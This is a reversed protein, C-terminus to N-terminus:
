QQTEKRYYLSLPGRRSKCSLRASPVPVSKVTADQMCCKFMTQQQQQARISMNHLSCHTSDSLSHSSQARIHPGPIATPMKPQLTTAM